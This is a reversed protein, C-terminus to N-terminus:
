PIKLNSTVHEGNDEDNVGEGPIPCPICLYPLMQVMDSDHLCQMYDM